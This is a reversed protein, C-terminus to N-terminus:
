GRQFTNPLKAEILDLSQTIFDQPVVEIPEDIYADIDIAAAYQPNLRLRNKAKLRELMAERQKRPLSRPLTSLNGLDLRELREVTHVTIRYKRESTNIVATHGAAELSGQFADALSPDVRFAHLSKIWQNAEDESRMDFIYWIRFGERIFSNLELEEHVIRSVSEVQEIFADIDKRQLAQNVPQDLSFDYKLPGFNFQIGTSTHILPANQPNVSGERTVWDPYTMMIRNATTGCRDLYVMGHQYRVEFVLKNYLGEKGAIKM